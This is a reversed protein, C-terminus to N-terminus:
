NTYVSVCLYNPTGSITGFDIYMLESATVTGNTISGDDSAGDADCIIAETANTLDTLTISYSTAGSVNCVIDTITYADELIPLPLNGASMFAVSTSAICTKFTADKIQQNYATEWNTTSATLPVSYGSAPQIDTTSITLGNSATYTTNADTTNCVIGSASEYTCLKTDTLTGENLSFVTGTLDLLTGGATYTTNNDTPASCTLTDGIASVYQGATCGTPYNDLTTWDGRAVFTSSAYSQTFYGYTNDWNTNGDTIFGQGSWDGWGYATDYNAHNYTTTHSSLTSTAQGLVDYLGSHNGWGYATAWETTSATLPINYNADLFPTLTHASGSSTIQISLNSSTASAFTQTANTIGNLSSIGTGSIPGNVWETGDYSLYDGSALLALGVDTLSELSPNEQLISFGDGLLGSSQKAGMAFGVSILLLGSVVILIKSYLTKM